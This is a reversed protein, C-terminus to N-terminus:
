IYSIGSPTYYFRTYIIAVAPIFPSTLATLASTTIVPLITLAPAITLYILARLGSLISKEGGVSKKRQVM